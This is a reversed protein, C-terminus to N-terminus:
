MFTPRCAVTKPVIRLTAAAYTAIFKSFMLSRSCSTNENMLAGSNAVNRSPINQAREVAFPANQPRSPPM